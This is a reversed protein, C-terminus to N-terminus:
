GVSVLGANATTIESLTFDQNGQVKNIICKLVKPIKIM